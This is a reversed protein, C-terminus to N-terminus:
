KAIIADESEYAKHHNSAQKDTTISQLLEIDIFSKDCKNDNLIEFPQDQEGLHNVVIAAGDFNNDITYTHTTIITNLGANIAARNGAATDEIAICEEAVLGMGALACKYVMPSPKKNVIQDSTVIPKFIEKPNQEFIQEALTLFNATSSSTAIALQIGHNLAEAILRKIGPRAQIAGNHIFNRYHESKCKHLDLIFQEEDKLSAKLAIDQTLCYRFREKGGSIYLLEHYDKPTWYWDLKFEEFALNFALRHYEETDAITGDVDFIIGKLKMKKAHIFQLDCINYFLRNTICHLIKYNYM